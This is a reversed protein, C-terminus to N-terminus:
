KNRPPPPPPPPVAADSAPPTKPAPLAMGHADPVDAAAGSAPSRGSDAHMAAEDGARHADARGKVAGLQDRMQAREAETYARTRDGWSRMAFRFERVDEITGPWLFEAFVDLPFYDHWRSDVHATGDLVEYGPASLSVRHTGDFPSDIEVPTPTPLEVGDLTVIAGAPESRIILKRQVCGGASLAAAATLATLAVLVARRARAPPTVPLAPMTAM